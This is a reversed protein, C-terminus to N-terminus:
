GSTAKAGLKQQRNYGIDAKVGCSSLGENRRHHLRCNKFYKLDLWTTFPNARINEVTPHCAISSWCCHRSALHIPRILPGLFRTGAPQLEFVHKDQM